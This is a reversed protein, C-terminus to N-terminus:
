KRGRLRYKELDDGEIETVSWDSKAISYLRYPPPKVLCEPNHYFIVVILRSDEDARVESGCRRISPNARHFYEEVRKRPEGYGRKWDRLAQYIEWLIALAFCAGFWYIIIELWGPM